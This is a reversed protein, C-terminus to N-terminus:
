KIKEMVEIIKNHLEFANNGLREFDKLYESLLKLGETDEKTELHSVLLNLKELMVILQDKLMKTVEKVAIVISM